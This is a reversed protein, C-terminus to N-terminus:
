SEDGYVERLFLNDFHNLLPKIDLYHTIVKLEFEDKLNSNKCYLIKGYKIVQFLFRPSRKNLIRVDVSIRYNFLKEIEYSLQAFYLSPEKFNEELVIGLDIDSFKTQYGQAYSGFLYVLNIESRNQFIQKGKQKLEKISIVDYQPRKM